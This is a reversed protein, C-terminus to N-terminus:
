FVGMATADNLGDGHQEQQADGQSKDAKIQILFTEPNESLVKAQGGHEIREKRYNAQQKDNEIEGHFFPTDEAGVHARHVHEKFGDIVRLNLCGFATRELHPEPGHKPRYEEGLDDEGKKLGQIILEPQDGRSIEREDSDTSGENGPEHPEKNM